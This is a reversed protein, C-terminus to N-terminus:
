PWRFDRAQVGLRASFWTNIDKFFQTKSSHVFCNLGDLGANALQRATIAMSSATEYEFKEPRTARNWFLPRDIWYHLYNQFMGYKILFESYLLTEPAVKPRAGVQPMTCTETRRVPTNLSDAGVAQTACCAVLAGFRVFNFLRRMQMGM